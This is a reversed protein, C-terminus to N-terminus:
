RTWGEVSAIWKGIDFGPKGVVPTISQASVVGDTTSFSFLDRHFM